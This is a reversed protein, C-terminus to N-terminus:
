EIRCYSFYAIDSTTIVEAGGSVQFFRVDPTTSEYPYKMYESNNSDSCTTTVDVTLDPYGSYGRYCIVYKGSSPAYVNYNSEHDYYCKGTEYLSLQPM